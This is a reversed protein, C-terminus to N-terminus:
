SNPLPYKGPYDRSGMPRPPPRPEGFVKSHTLRLPGARYDGWPDPRAAQDNLRSAHAVPESAFFFSVGPIPAGTSVRDLSGGIEIFALNICSPVQKMHRAAHAHPGHGTVVM